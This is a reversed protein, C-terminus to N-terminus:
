TNRELLRGLPETLVGGENIREGHLWTSKVVGHLTKGAYATIRNRHQLEAPDV